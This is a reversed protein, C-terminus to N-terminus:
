LEGLIEKVKQVKIWQKASCDKKKWKGKAEWFEKLAVSVNRRGSETLGDLKNFVEVARNESVQPDRIEVAFREEPTMAEIALRKKEEEQRQQEEELVRRKETRAAERMLEAKREAEKVQGGLLVQWSRRWAADAETFEKETAESLPELSLWGFPKFNQKTNPRRVDSAVWLTTAHDLTKGGGGGKGMIRISRYGEVTVCEAGSHRGLRIVFGTTKEADQGAPIGIRALESNERDKEKSFFKRCSDILEEMSIPVRIKSGREPSEVTITGQFVTGAEVVEFLLPLGRAQYASASKKENVAYIVRTRAEGVSHFDSVKILRFPDDPIGSRDLLANELERDAGRGRVPVAPKRLSRGNLVATRLAGKLSSGPIYPRHDGALFATRPISFSNLEQQVKRSDGSPISLTKRYHDIFDACVSVTRGDAPRNRMFKYIDLISSVTGQSCIESFKRRDADDLGAVFEMPDFLVLQQGKEDLVFATPEYVEDCGVHVPSLAKLYCKLTTREM